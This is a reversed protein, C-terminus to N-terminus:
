RGGGPLIFTVASVNWSLEPLQGSPNLSIDRIAIMRPFDNLAAALRIVQEFTGKIALSMPFPLDTSPAQASASQGPVSPPPKPQEVEGPRISGAVVVAPVVGVLIRPAVAVRRVRERPLLNIKIM